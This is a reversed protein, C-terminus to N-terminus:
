GERLLSRLYRGGLGGWVREGDKQLSELQLRLEELSAVAAVLGSVEGRLVELSTVTAAQEGAAGALERVEIRLEEVEGKVVAGQVEVESRLSLIGERQWDQSAQLERQSQQLEAVQVELAAKVDNVDSKLDGIDRGLSGFAM